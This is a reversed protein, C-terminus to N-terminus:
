RRERIITESVPEGQVPVARRNRYPTFETIPPKVESLVGAEVLRRQLEGAIPEDTTATLKSDLEKRLQRLQEPSLTHVSDLLHRFESQTM